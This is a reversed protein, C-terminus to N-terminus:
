SLAGGSPTADQSMRRGSGELLVGTLIGSLAAAMLGLEFPLSAALLVGSGVAAVVHRLWPQPVPTEAQAVQIVDAAGLGM